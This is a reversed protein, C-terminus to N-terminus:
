LSWDHEYKGLWAERERWDPLVGGVSNWFAPSHNRHVRHCIEHAIVYELVAKPLEILQPNLRIVGDKGCSAWMRKMAVVAVGAFDVGLEAAYRRALRQGDALLRANMWADLLARTTEPWKAKALGKPLTVFFRSRYVVRGVKGRGVEVELRLWRGRFRVTTGRLYSPKRERRQGLKEFQTFVWRRKQRVFAHASDLAEAAPLVVRVSGPEVVIRKAKARASQEIRYPIQVRGVLM